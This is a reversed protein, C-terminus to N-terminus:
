PHRKVPRRERTSVPKLPPPEEGRPHHVERENTREKANDNVATTAVDQVVAADAQLKEGESEDVATSPLATFCQQLPRDFQLVLDRKDENRSKLHRLRVRSPHKPEPVLIFADDAGYELESSESAPWPSTTTPPSDGTIGPGGSPPSPSSRRARTRRTPPPLGDHREDGGPHRSSTGLIPHAARRGGGTDASFAVTAMLNELQFPAEHLM